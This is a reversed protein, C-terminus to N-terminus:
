KSKPIDFEFNNVPELTEEESIRSEEEV